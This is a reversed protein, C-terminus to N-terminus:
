SLDIATAYRELFVGRYRVGPENPATFSMRTVHIAPTGTPVALAVADDEVLGHAEIEITARLPPRNAMDALVDHASRRTLDCHLLGPCLHQALWREALFVPRGGYLAAQAVHIVPEGLPLRLCAAIDPSAPELIQALVRFRRVKPTEVFRFTLADPDPAAVFSGVGQVSHIVREAELQELAKRVTGRALAHHMCLTAETPLPAGPQLRGSHIQSRLRQALQLYKPVGNRRITNM